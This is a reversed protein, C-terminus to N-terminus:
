LFAVYGWAAARPSPKRSKYAELANLYLRNWVISHMGFLRTQGEQQAHRAVPIFHVYRRYQQRRGRANREPKGSKAATLHTVPMDAWLM